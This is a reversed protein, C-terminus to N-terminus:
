GGEVLSPLWREFALLAAGGSTAEIRGIAAPDASFAYGLRWIAFRRGHSTPGLQLVRMKFHRPDRELRDLLGTIAPEPGEVFQCFAKGDFVLLGTIGDRANNARSQECIQAVEEAEPRRQESVYLLTFLEADAATALAEAPM